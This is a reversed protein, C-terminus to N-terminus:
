KTWTWAASDPTWRHRDTLEDLTRLLDVDLTTAASAVISDIQDPRSAGVVLSGVAPQSLAWGVALDAM